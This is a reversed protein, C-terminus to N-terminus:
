ISLKFFEVNYAGSCFLVAKRKVLFKVKIGEGRPSFARLQEVM